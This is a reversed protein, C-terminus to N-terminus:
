DHRLNACAEDEVSGPAGFTEVDEEPLSAHHWRFEAADGGWYAAFPDIHDEWHLAPYLYRRFLANRAAVGREYEPTRRTAVGHVFALPMAGWVTSVFVKFTSGLASTKGCFM